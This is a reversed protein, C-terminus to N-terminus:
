KRKAVKRYTVEMGYSGKEKRIIIKEDNSSVIKTDTALSSKSYDEYYFPGFPNCEITFYTDPADEGDYGFGGPEGELYYIEYDLEWAYEHHSFGKSFVGDYYMTFFGTGARYYEDWYFYEPVSGTGADIYDPEDQSYTLSLYARGDRGDYGIDECSTFFMLSLSLLILANAKRTFLKSLRKM